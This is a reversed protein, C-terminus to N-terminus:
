RYILSGDDLDAAPLITREQEHEHMHTWPERDGQRFLMHHSRMVYTVRSTFDVPEGDVAFSVLRSGPWGDRVAGIARL